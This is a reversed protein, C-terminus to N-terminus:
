AALFQKLHSLQDRKEKLLTSVRQRVAERSKGRESAIEQYTVGDMMRRKLFEVREDEPDLAADIAEAALEWDLAHLAQQISVPFRCCSESAKM